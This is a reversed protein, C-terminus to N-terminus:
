QPPNAKAPFRILQPANNGPSSGAEVVGARGGVCFM